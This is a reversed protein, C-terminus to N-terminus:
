AIKRLQLRRRAVMKYNDKEQIIEPHDSEIFVLEYNAPDEGRKKVEEMMTMVYAYAASDEYDTIKHAMKKTFVDHIDVLSM